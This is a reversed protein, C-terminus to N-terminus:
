IMKECSWEVKGLNKALFEIAFQPDLAQEKTVNPHSPLHIQVLGWSDERQGKITHYSQITTSGNSECAIIKKMREANRGYKEAQTEIEREIREPTWTIVPEILIEKVEPEQAYVFVTEFTEPHEITYSNIGIGGFIGGLIALGIIPRKM